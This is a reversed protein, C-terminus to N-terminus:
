LPVFHDFFLISNKELFGEYQLTYLVNDKGLIFYFTSPYFGSITVTTVRANYLSGNKKYVQTLKKVQFGMKEVTERVLSEFGKFSQPRRKIKEGPLDIVNYFEDQAEAELRVIKKKKIVLAETPTAVRFHHDEEKRTTTIEKAYWYKGSKVQVPALTLEKVETGSVQSILCFSFLLLYSFFKIKNM